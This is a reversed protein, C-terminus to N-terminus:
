DIKIVRKSIVEKAKAMVFDFDKSDIESSIEGSKQLDVLSKTELLRTLSDLGNYSLDYTGPAFEVIKGKDTDAKAVPLYECTRFKTADNSPIAVVNYPSVLCVLSNNGFNMSHKTSKQHLGRSCSSNPDNDCDARNMSVPKGIVIDMTGTHQDTYVTTTVEKKPDAYLDALNGFESGKEPLKTNSVCILEGDEQEWIVYNKPSKKWKKVKAWEQSVFDEFKKNSGTTKVNVNRYSIINGEDTIAFSSTNIWKFLGQRVHKDPNLLLYKWFNILSDVTYNSTPNYHADLLAEVLIKPMPYKFGKLYTIGDEDYEFLGSIDGIRKAKKMRTDFDIELQADQMAQIKAAEEAKRAAVREPILIDLLTDRNTMEEFLDSSQTVEECAEMIQLWLADDIGSRTYIKGNIVVIVLDNVRKKTIINIM